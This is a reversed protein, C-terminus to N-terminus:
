GFYRRSVREIGNSAEIEERYDRIAPLSIYYDVKTINTPINRRRFCPFSETVLYHKVGKVEFVYDTDEYEPRPYYGYKLLMHSFEAKVDDDFLRSLLKMYVLNLNVANINTRSTKDAFVVILKGCNSCDLQEVSSIKVEEKGSSVTKVEFWTDDLIFDQHAAKPGTWSLASKEPGYMEMLENELIYMEGLLGKIQEPTLLGNRSCALMEKWEKYRTGVFGVAKDKSKITRSSDIIDGCFLLFMDKYDSNILSLSITWRGDTRQGIRIQIMRSSVPFAPRSDCILLLTWRSMEDVGVYLDLPHTTDVRQYVDIQNITKFIDQLNIM